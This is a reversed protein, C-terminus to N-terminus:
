VWKKLEEVDTFTFYTELGEDPLGTFKLWDQYEKRIEKVTKGVIPDGLKTHYWDVWEKPTLIGIDIYRKEM